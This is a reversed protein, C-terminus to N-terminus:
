PRTGVPLNDKTKKWSPEQARYDKLMKFLRGKLKATRKPQQPALNHKEGIDRAVNYLECTRTRWYYILHMHGMMLSSYPGYGDRESIGTTWFHPYHWVIQRQRHLKPNRLLPVFSHGDVVQSTRYNRIGAMELLSPFFDEIMVRNNNQTGPRTVGPWYVLMPEHIGGELASGKGGRAPFNQDYNPRGQRVDIAQGGNDSMFIVITNRAVDPKSDIFRMLDGLSKDMGEVLAAHNIEQENLPAHLMPDFVGQGNSQRYNHTFREDADYPVHIAYHSMYLFFPKGEAIPKDLAKIAEQTLAETLFTDTNYYNELGQVHFRNHGFEKRALYSAPGGNAGGAINVIFGFSRPDEGATTRAGFHAKGCLITYYGADKLLQPLPTILTTRHKNHPSQVTDPQIGNCNWAPPVMEPDDMDTTIDYDLTWNTVKHRAANMGSLLSCRSPSSIACAYAQTFKVGRSALLEMNPTRYRHNLPTPHKYFPVSTEQWGMDDVLFLVINPRNVSQAVGHNPVLFAASLLALTPTKM